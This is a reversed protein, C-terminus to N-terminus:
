RASAAIEPSSSIDAILLQVARGGFYLMACVVFLFILLDTLKSRM